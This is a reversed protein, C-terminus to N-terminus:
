KSIWWAGEYIGALRSQWNLRVPCCCSQLPETLTLIFELGSKVMMELSFFTLKLVGSKLGCISHTRAPTVLTMKIWFSILCGTRKEKQIVTVRNKQVRSKAFLLTGLKKFTGSVLFIDPRGSLNSYHTCISQAVTSVGDLGARTYYSYGIM